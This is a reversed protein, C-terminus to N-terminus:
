RLARRARPCERAMGSGPRTGRGSTARGRRSRWPTGTSRGAERRDPCADRTFAPRTRPLCQARACYSRGDNGCWCGTVTRRRWTSSCSMTGSSRRYRTSAPLAIERPIPRKRRFFSSRRHGACWSTSTMRATFFRVSPVAPNTDFVWPAASFYPVAGLDYVALRAEPAYTGLWRGLAIEVASPSFRAPRWLWIMPLLLVIVLVPTVLRGTLRARGDRFTADLGVAAAAALLPFLPVEYRFGPGGELRPVAAFAALAFAAGWAANPLAARGARTWAAAVFLPAMASALPLLEFARIKLDHLTLGAKAQFTSPLASGYYWMRWLEHPGWCAGIVLLGPLARRCLAGGQRWSGDVPQLPGGEFRLPGRAGDDGRFLGAVPDALLIALAVAIGEPRTLTILALPIASGAHSRGSQHEREHLLLSWVILSCYLPTELGGVSWLALWPLSALLVVAIHTARASGSRARVLLGTSVVTLLGFVVGAVKVGVAAADVSLPFLFPVASLAVWLPSSYGERAPQADFVPGMGAALNRGYRLSIYADDITFSFLSLALLSFGALALASARGQLPSAIAAGAAVLLIVAAAAALGEM